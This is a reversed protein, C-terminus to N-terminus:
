PNNLKWFAKLFYNPLYIFVSGNLLNFYSIKITNFVADKQERPQMYKILFVSFFKYCSFTSINNCNLVVTKLQLMCKKYNEAEKSWDETDCSGESIM